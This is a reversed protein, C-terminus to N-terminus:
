SHYTYLKKKIKYSPWTLIHIYKTNKLMFGYKQSTTTLLNTIYTHLIPKVTFSHINREEKKFWIFYSSLLSTIENMYNIFNILLMGVM